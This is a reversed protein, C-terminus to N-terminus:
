RECPDGISEIGYVRYETANYGRQKSHKVTWFLWNSFQVITQVFSCNMEYM